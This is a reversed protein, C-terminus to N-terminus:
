IEDLCTHTYRAKYDFELTKKVCVYVRENMRNVHSVSVCDDDEPEDGDAYPFKWSSWTKECHLINRTQAGICIITGFILNDM